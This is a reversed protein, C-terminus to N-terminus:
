PTWWRVPPPLPDGAFEFHAVRRHNPAGSKPSGHLLLPRMVVADGAGVTCAVRPGREVLRRSAGDDLFGHAHSGSIVELPGNDPGCADLHVRVTVMRELVPAPPRVHPIGAKVSWPGFGPAEVREAVAITADQHFGLAWNAGAPKDFLIARTVFGPRGLIAEVLDRVTPSEALVRFAPVRRLLDRVGASEAEPCAAILREILDPAVVRPVVAFGDQELRDRPHAGTEGGRHAARQM